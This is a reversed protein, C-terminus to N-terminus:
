SMPDVPTSDYGAIEEIQRAVQFLRAEGWPKGILQVAFPMNNPLKGVPITIVPLAMTTSACAISLWRYYDPIPTGTGHGPFRHEAPVCGISTAPCILVDFEQMFTQAESVVRGQGRLARRYDASELAIGKEINWVLEPKMKGPHRALTDELVVAFIMARIIDFAEQAETAVPHREELKGTYPQLKSVFEHFHQAIEDSVSTVGLNESVAVAANKLKIAPVSEFAQQMEDKGENRMVDAFLALDKINRAMPGEAGLVQFPLVDSDSRITGPSPRLSSVGCFAAPTRLSGAMDSGHSLWSCGSALAAAAGGSSGGSAFLTNHPSRTIGFVDNFTIGGAGFEPTNSKAYIVGGEGEIRNVLQDSQVPIFNEHIISGFTTRVGEVPTLDKIAVPLGCLRGRERVPMAQIKNAHSVARDFCLTPLANLTVDVTEIRLRLEELVETCSIENSKLLTVVETATSKYLTTM